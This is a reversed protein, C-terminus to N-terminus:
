QERELFIEGTAAMVELTYSDGTRDALEIVIDEATGDPEFRITEWQKESRLGRLPEAERHFLVEVGEPLQVSTLTLAQVDQGESLWPLSLGRVSVWCLNRDADFNVLVPQRRAIASAYAFNLVDFTKTAATKAGRRRAAAVVSPVVASMIITMVVAVVMLEILTFGNQASRRLGRSVIKVPSVAFGESRLATNNRAKSTSGARSMRM